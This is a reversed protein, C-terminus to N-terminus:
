FPVDDTLEDASLKSGDKWPLINDVRFSTRQEGNRNTYEQENLRVLAPAGM